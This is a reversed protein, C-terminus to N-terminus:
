GTSYPMTLGNAYRWCKDVDDRWSSDGQRADWTMAPPAPAQPALREIMGDPFHRVGEEPGDHYWKQTAYHLTWYEYPDIRRQEPSTDEIKVLQLSTSEPSNAIYLSQRPSSDTSV